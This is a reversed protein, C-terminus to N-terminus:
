KLSSMAANVMAFMTKEDEGYRKDTLFRVIASMDIGNKKLHRDLLWVPIWIPSFVIALLGLLGLTITEILMVPLSPIITVMYPIPSGCAYCSMAAITIEQKQMEMIDFFDAAHPALDRKM